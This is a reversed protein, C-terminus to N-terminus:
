PRPRTTPTAFAASASSHALASEQNAQWQARLLRATFEQYSCDAKETSNIAAYSTM